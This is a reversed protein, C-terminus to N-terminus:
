TRYLRPNGAAGEGLATDGSREAVASWSTKAHNMAAKATMFGGKKRAPKAIKLQGFTYM